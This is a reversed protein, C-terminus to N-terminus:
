ESGIQAGIYRSTPRIMRGEARQEAIHAVWGASRAAAFMPTLGARPIGIAEVLLAAYYEVNARLPRGPVAEALAAVFAEEIAVAEVRRGTQGGIAQWERRMLSARLDEGRYARSGFGMIRKGAARTDAVYRAVDEPGAIRDLQDLVLAPAGGHRPGELTALGALIAADITAGTSAAIRVAYTSASIGHDVMLICYREFARAVESAVPAGTALAVLDAAHGRQPDPAIWGQGAASRVALAASLGVAAVAGLEPDVARASFSSLLMRMAEAVPRGRVIPALPEMMAFCASRVEGLALPSVQTPVVDRWLLAVVEEYSHTESLAALDHGRLVIRGATEDGFSLRTTLEGTM